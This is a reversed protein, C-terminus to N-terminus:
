IGFKRLNYVFSVLFYRKLVISRVDEIYTETTNRTLSRNQNLIDFIHLKVEGQKGKLFQRSLAANWLTFQQNFGRARGTTGNYTLDSSFTFQFPLQWHFDATLYQSWYHTNQERLLSYRAQQYSIRAGLGYDIKGNFASQIRIGQSLLTTNARNELNNILSKSGSMNVQSNLTLNLKLPNMNRSWSLFSNLAWFGHTNIPISFRAGNESISMANNIRSNSQNLNAFLFLSRDGSNDSSNYTLTLTNFFEPLLAPNGSKVDLPNTNDVVPQLQTISAPAIRTRYQLRARRNGPFTYSFLGNPLWHFYSKDIRSEQSLNDSVQRASQVDIGLTYSFRLRQTQLTAGAKHAAFTGAFRNTLMSDAVSYSNTEENKDFVFRSQRNQHNILAYRVELKQRFSLPETYSINLNNQASFSSQRNQQDIHDSLKEIVASDYFMNRSQNYGTTKGDALVTNLNASFTRGQKAFKHMLILNNYGNMGNGSSRYHTEGANLSDGAKTNAANLVDSQYRVKQWSFHPTFRLSTLSDLQFEFRGAFRQNFAKNRNYSSQDAVFSQGPLIYERRSEQDTTTIAQNAFYSASIEARKGYRVKEGEARYNFGGARVETMNAPGQGDEDGFSGPQGTFMPGGMGGGPLSGDGLSFNQRNLNNAEGVLSIQRGPGGNRNNFRNLSLKGQYRMANLETNRGAGIANQGFYGKGKDKKITINITRERNGDDIGSFQSQDSSQDYVQVKDVIGAPLNRTAMKPDDGFFPKGDVFVRRVAQGNSKIQGDRSVEVGPLKKLLEEVQANPETKFADANFQVTDGKVSVPPAEQKIVVEQLDTGQETMWLTDLRVNQAAVEFLVSKNRYGIFTVLLRYSGAAVNKLKFHGAGDTIGATVYASDSQTLLSVSATRLPKQSISDLITGSVEARVASKQGSATFCTLIMALLFAFKM